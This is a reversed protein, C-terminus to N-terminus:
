RPRGATLKLDSDVGGHFDYWAFHYYNTRVIFQDTRVFNEYRLTAERGLRRVTRESAHFTPNEEVVEWGALAVPCAGRVECAEQIRRATAAACDRIATSALRERVGVVGMVLVILAPRLLGILRQRNADRPRRRWLPVLDCTRALLSILSFGAAWLAPVWIFHMTGRGLPIWWLSALCLPPFLIFTWVLVPRRVRSSFVVTLLMLPCLVFLFLQNM